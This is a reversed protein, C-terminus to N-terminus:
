RGRRERPPQRPEPSLPPGLQELLAEKAASRWRGPPSEELRQLVVPDVGLERLVDLARGRTREVLARLRQEPPLEALELREETTPQCAARLRDLWVQAAADPDARRADHRQDPGSGARRQREFHERVRGYRRAFVEPPATRLRQWTEHDMGDPLGRREIWGDLRRGARAVLAALQV